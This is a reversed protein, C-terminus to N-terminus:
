RKRGSQKARKFVSKPEPWTERRGYRLRQLEAVIERHKPDASLRALWRGAKQRVPDYKEPQRRVQWRMWAWRVCQLTGWALAVLGVLLGGTKAARVMSWPGRLWIKLKRSVDELTARIASGSNQTFSKVQDIMQLQTRSDFNVIRRYWLVRLSDFRASWSSDYEQRSVQEALAATTQVAGPTPDVRLWADKGNYIEAWAHADSNRIMYYNEFANLVGGRFGTVVRAPFGAARALVTFGAAFYECYGPQSSNLWRVIDDQGPAEPLKVSLVYAHRAWLWATVKQAFEEASLPAGGEIEGVLRHLVATNAEGQPGGLNILPNYKKRVALEDPATRAERLLRAFAPDRILPTQEVGEIQFASMAIPETRLALLRFEPKWQVPVFNALRAVGFSGPLPLFRSVGPEVYVTWTGGVINVGRNSNRGSIRPAIMSQSRLLETKLQASMRMGQPTYEDLVVMRWYPREALGNIDSVDVRMAVSNDRVLETVDGFRLNETFGTRSARTIYRDLFFGSALEFRPIVLFLLGSMVVVATFLASAFGILRWDAVARLRAFFNVSGIRTWALGMEETTPSGTESAAILNIVFLFGLAFATFLLLLFAFGLAVTLVGAVVILFMGLVILQLDERKRRYSVCRYFVLLIALRILVPLTDPSLYFDVAAVVIIAPVILKWILAPIRSPLQPWILTALIVASVVGVLGLAEIDLYFVTWLSVLAMAGGLLWNLRRLEDLNLQRQKTVTSM